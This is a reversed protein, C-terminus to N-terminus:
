KLNEQKKSPGRAYGKLLKLKMYFEKAIDTVRQAHVKM